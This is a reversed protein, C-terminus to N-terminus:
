KEGREEPMRDDGKQRGVRMEEDVKRGQAKLKEDDPRNLEVQPMLVLALVTALAAIAACVLFVTRFGKRYAAILLIRIAEDNGSLSTSDLIM